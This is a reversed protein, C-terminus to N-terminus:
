FFEMAAGEDIISNSDLALAYQFFGSNAAIQLNQNILRLRKFIRHPPFCELPPPCCEIQAQPLEEEYIIVLDNVADKNLDIAISDGVGRCPIPEKRFIYDPQFDFYFGNHDIRGATMKFPENSDKRCASLLGFCLTAILFRLM